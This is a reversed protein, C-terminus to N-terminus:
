GRAEKGNEESEEEHDEEQNEEEKGLYCEGAYHQLEAFSFAKGLVPLLTASIMCYESERIGPPRCFRTDM